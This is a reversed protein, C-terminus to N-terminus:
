YEAVDKRREQSGDPKLIYRARNGKEDLFSLSQQFLWQLWVPLYNVGDSRISFIRTDTTRNRGQGGNKEPTLRDCPKCRIGAGQTLFCM